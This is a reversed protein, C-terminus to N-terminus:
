MLDIFKGGGDVCFSILWPLSNEPDKVMENFNGSWLEIVKVKVHKLAYKVLDKKKKDGYYKERQFYHVLVCTLWSIYNGVNHCKSLHLRM